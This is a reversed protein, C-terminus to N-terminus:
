STDNSNKRTSKLHPCAPWEKRYLRCKEASNLHQVDPVVPKQGVKGCWLRLVYDRLYEYSEALSRLREPFMHSVRGRSGIWRPWRLLSFMRRESRTCCLSFSFPLTVRVECITKPSRCCRKRTSSESSPVSKGM